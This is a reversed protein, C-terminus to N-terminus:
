KSEVAKRLEALHMRIQEVQAPELTVKSGSGTLMAEIAAIHSMPTDQSTRDASSSQSPSQGAPNSRPAPDPDSPPSGPAASSPSTTSSSPTSPSSTSPAASPASSPTAASPGPVGSTAPGAAKEFDKLHTRFEVLKGKIAPDLAPTTGSTGVAGPTGTPGAAAPQSAASEPGILAMVNANVKDYAAKWDAKATILENFNSILQSVQTRADGTLQAAAPLQTLQALSDRAATLQRRAEEESAQSDAAPATPAQAQSQEAPQEASTPAAGQASPTPQATQGASAPAASEATPAPNAAPAQAAAAAASETSPESSPAPASSGAGSMSTAFATVHQRVEMLKAKTTDDITMPASKSTTGTTGVTASPAGPAGGAAPVLENLIKDIAAVDKAWANQTKSAPKAASAGPAESAAASKELANLHRKLEGVRSKAQAPLTSAPIDNLAAEALRIHEAPSGAKADAPQQAASPQSTAPSPTQSWGATPVGIL